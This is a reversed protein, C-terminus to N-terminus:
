EGDEDEAQDCSVGDVEAGLGLLGLAIAFGERVRAADGYYAVTSGGSEAPRPVASEGSPLGSPSRSIQHKEEDVRL